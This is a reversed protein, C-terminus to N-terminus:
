IKGSKCCAGNGRRELTRLLLEMLAKGMGSLIFQHPHRGTALGALVDDFSTRDSLENPHAHCTEAEHNHWIYFLTASSRRRINRRETRFQTLGRLWGRLQVVWSGASWDRHTHM